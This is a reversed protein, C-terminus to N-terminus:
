GKRQGSRAAKAGHAKLVNKVKAANMIGLYEGDIIVMPGLACAGVCNVTDLSYEMDDTTNGAKINLKRELEELVRGAGRVHCATGMCVTCQHRGKPKLSFAKFFTAVGYVQILPLNLRKAVHRLAEEPLYHLEAQIDQLISILADASHGNSGIVYEIQDHDSKAIRVAGM